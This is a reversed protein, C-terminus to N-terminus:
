TKLMKTVILEQSQEENQGASEVRFNDAQITLQLQPCQVVVCLGAAM